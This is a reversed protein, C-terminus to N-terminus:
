DSKPDFGRGIQKFYISFYTTPVMRTQLGVAIVKPNYNVLMYWRIGMCYLVDHVCMHM